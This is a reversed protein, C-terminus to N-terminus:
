AYTSFLEWFRMWPWEWLAFSSTAALFIIYLCEFVGVELFGSVAEGLCNVAHLDIKLLPSFPLIRV